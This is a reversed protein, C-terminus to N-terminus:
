ELFPYSPSSVAEVSPCSSAEALSQPPQLVATLTLLSPLAWLSGERPPGAAAPCGAHTRALKGPLLAATRVRPGLVSTREPGRLTPASPRRKWVEGARGAPCATLAAPKGPAASPRLARLAPLSPPLAPPLSRSGVTLPPVRASCRGPRAAEGRVAAAAAHDRPRAGCPARGKRSRPNERGREKESRGAWDAACPRGEEEELGRGVGEPSSFGGRGGGKGACTLLGGLDRSLITM